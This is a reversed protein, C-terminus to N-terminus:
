FRDVPDLKRPSFMRGDIKQLSIKFSDSVTEADEFTSLHQMTNRLPNQIEWSCQDSKSQWGLSPGVNRRRNWMTAETKSEGSLESKEDKDEWFMEPHEFESNGQHGWYHKDIGSNSELHLECSPRNTGMGLQGGVWGGVWGGLGVVEFYSISGILFWFLLSPSLSLGM